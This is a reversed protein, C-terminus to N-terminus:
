IDPQVYCLPVNTSIVELGQVTDQVNIMKFFSTKFDTYKYFMDNKKHM